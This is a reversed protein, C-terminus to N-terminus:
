LKVRISYYGEVQKFTKSEGKGILDRTSPTFTITNYHRIHFAELPENNDSQATIVQMLSPVIRFM